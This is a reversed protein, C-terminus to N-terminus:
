KRNYAAEEEFHTYISKLAAPTLPRELFNALQEISSRIDQRVDEYKLFLLNNDKRQEWWELVHRFYSGYGMFTFGLRVNINIFRYFFQHFTGKYHVMRVTRHFDYFSCMVDKPNRTIYIVKKRKGQMRQEQRGRAATRLPLHSKIYRPSPLTKLLEMGPSPAELFPISDEVSELSLDTTNLDGGELLLYILDQLWVGARPYSVIWVDDKRVPFTAVDKGDKRDTRVNVPSM